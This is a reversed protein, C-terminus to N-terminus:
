TKEIGRRFYGTLHVMGLKNELTPLRLLHPNLSSKMWKEMFWGREVHFARKFTVTIKCTILSNIITIRSPTLNPNM